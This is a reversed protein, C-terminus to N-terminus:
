SKVTASGLGLALIAQTIDSVTRVHKFTEAQIKKGTIEKLRLLLDVADISDIGLDDYLRADSTIKTPDIDFLEVLVEKLREEIDEKTNM